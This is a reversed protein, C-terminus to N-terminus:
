DVNESFTLFLDIKKGFMNNLFKDFFKEHPIWNDVLAIKTIQSPLSSIM